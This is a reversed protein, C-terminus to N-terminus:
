ARSTDILVGGDTELTARLDREIIGDAGQIM